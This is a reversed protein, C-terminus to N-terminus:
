ENSYIEALAEICVWHYHAQEEDKLYELLRSACGFDQMRRLTAAAAKGLENPFRFILNEIRLSTETNHSEISLVKLAARCVGLDDDELARCLYDSVDSKSLSQIQEVVRQRITPDPDEFMNLLQERGRDSGPFNGLADLAALRVGEDQEELGHLITDLAADDATCGLSHFAERRMEQDEEQCLKILVEVVDTGTQPYNRLLRIALKRVEPQIEKLEIDEEPEVPAPQNALIAALTSSQADQDAVMDMLESPLEEVVDNDQEVPVASFELVNVLQQIANGPDLEVLAELAACAVRQNQDFVTDKLVERAGSEQLREEASLNGYQLGLTRAAQIRLTYHNADDALLNTLRQEVGAIGINSLAVVVEYVLNKHSDDLFFSVAKLSLPEGISGLVRVIRKRLNLNDEILIQHLRDVVNRGRITGLVSAVEARVETNNDNLLSAIKVTAEVNGSVALAQAANIRVGPDSDKLAKSLGDLIQQHNSDNANQLEPLDALAGAARRRAIATGDKLRKLLFKRARGGSLKALARFGSEQLDEYGDEELVEILPDVAQQDGIEALADMLSSQVEWCANFEMDDIQYDLEPYGDEKFCRILREVTQPSSIKALAKVVEIRVEGEPDKELNELMPLAAQELQMKGLAVVAETRVEYDQDQMLSVLLKCTQEDIANMKQLANIACCKSVTEDRELVDHLADIITIEDIAQKNLHNKEYM